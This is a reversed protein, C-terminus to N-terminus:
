AAGGSAHIEPAAGLFRREGVLDPPEEGLLRGLAKRQVADIRAVAGAGVRVREHASEALAAPEGHAPGLREAALRAGHEELEHQELLQRQGARREPRQGAGPLGGVGDDLVAGLAQTALQQRGDRAALRREPLPVALRVGAGVQERELRLRLAVALM